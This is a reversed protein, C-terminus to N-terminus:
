ERLARNEKTTAELSSKMKNLDRQQAQFASKLQVLEEKFIQNEKLISVVSTQIEALMGKIGALSPEPPPNETRELTEKDGSAAMNPRKADNLYGEELSSRDGRKNKRGKTSM